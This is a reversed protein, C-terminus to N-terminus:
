LGSWTEQVASWYRAEDTRAHAVHMSRDFKEMRVEFGLKKAEAAQAELDEYGVLADTESYVYTRRLEREKKGRAENHTKGWFVLWDKTIGLVKLFQWSVVMLYIFPTLLIRQVKPLGVQFFAATNVVRQAGPASDFITVHPPLYPDEGEGASAAYQDYLASINASGGNSFIHILVQPESSLSATQPVAARIVPVMPKVSFALIEPDFLTKNYSKVLLIQSAPFLEKHKDVYKAIHNDGANTWSAIIILKPSASSSAAADGAPRYISVEDSLKEMYSLPKPRASLAADISM